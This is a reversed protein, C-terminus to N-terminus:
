KACMLILIGSAPLISAMALFTCCGKALQRRLRLRLSSNARGMMMVKM